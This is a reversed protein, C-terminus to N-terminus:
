VTGFCRELSVRDHYKKAFNAYKIVWIDQKVWFEEKTAM